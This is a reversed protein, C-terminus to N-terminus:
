SKPVSIQPSYEGRCVRSIHKKKIPAYGTMHLTVQGGGEGRGASAIIDM